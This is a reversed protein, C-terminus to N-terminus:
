QASSHDAREDEEAWHVIQAGRKRNHKAARRTILDWDKDSLYVTRSKKAEDDGQSENTAM